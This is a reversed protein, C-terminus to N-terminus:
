TIKITKKEIQMSREVFKSILNANTELHTTIKSTRYITTGKALAAYLLLQDALHSDVEETEQHFADALESAVIEARKGREGVSCAGKFGQWITIANGESFSSENLIRIGSIDRDELTKKEREAIALPLRCIRIIGQMPDKNEWDTNGKLLYPTISLELIGGGKPYYGSRILTSQIKIGFRELAPLFVNEFYDYGPSKKVHTGGIIRVASPFKAFLLIPLITQAVLITSGATGIDFEYEGGYIGDPEFSIEHSDLSAGNLNGQCITSATICATLHQPQLGPKKRKMRINKITFPKKTIASLSFATRVMQGGGEGLSGDIEIM